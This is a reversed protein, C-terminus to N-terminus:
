PPGHWGVVSAARCVVSLPPTNKGKESDNHPCPWRGLFVAKALPHAASKFKLSRGRNLLAGRLFRCDHGLNIIMRGPSAAALGRRAAHCADRYICCSLSRKLPGPISCEQGVLYREVACLSNTLLRQKSPGGHAQAAAFHDRCVPDHFFPSNVASVGTFRLRRRTASTQLKHVFQFQVPPLQVSVGLAPATRM